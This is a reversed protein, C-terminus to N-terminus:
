FLLFSEIYVVTCWKSYQTYLTNEMPWLNLWWNEDDFAILNTSIIDFKPTRSLKQTCDIYIYIYWRFSFTSCEFKSQYIQEFVCNGASKQSSKKKRPEETCRIKNPDIKFWVAYRKISLEIHVYIDKRYIYIESLHCM